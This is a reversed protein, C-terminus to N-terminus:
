QKGSPSNVSQAYTKFKEALLAVSPLSPGVALSLFVLSTSSFVKETKLVTVQTQYQKYASEPAVTLLDSGSLLSLAIHFSATEICASPPILGSSLFLNEFARRNASGKPMLIWDLEGIMKLPVKKRKAMPHDQSALIVLREEWLRVVNLQRVKESSTTEDLFGVVCDVEGDHLGKILSDVTGLKIQIQLMQNEQRLQNIVEGLANIGVLPIIGLRVLPRMQKTSTEARATGISKLAVKLRVLVNVGVPTLVGGKVSREILKADFAEELEHLMKTAGPQSMRLFDAAASLSGYRAVAELLRLHRMRLRDMRNSFATDTELELEIMALQNTYKDM